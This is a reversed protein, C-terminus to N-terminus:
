LDFPPQENALGTRRAYLDTRKSLGRADGYGYIYIYFLIDYEIDMHMVCVTAHVSLDLARKVCLSCSDDM